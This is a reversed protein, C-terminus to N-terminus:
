GHRYSGKRWGTIVDLMGELESSSTTLLAASGVFAEHQERLQKPLTVGDCSMRPHNLVCHQM